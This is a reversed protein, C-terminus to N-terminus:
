TIVNKSKRLKFIKKNTKSCSTQKYQANCCLKDIHKSFHLEKGITVGLLEVEDSEDITFTNVFLKQTQYLKKSHIMFQFKEPNAKM